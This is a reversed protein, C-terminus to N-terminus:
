IASSLMQPCCSFWSNVAQKFFFLFSLMLDLVLLILNIELQTFIGFIM